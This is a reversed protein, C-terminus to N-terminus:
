QKEEGTGSFDMYGPLALPRGVAWRQPLCKQGVGHRRSWGVCSLAVTVWGGNQAPAVLSGRGMACFAVAGGEMILQALLGCQGIASCTM